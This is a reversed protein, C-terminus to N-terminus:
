AADAVVSTRAPSLSRRIEREQGAGDRRARADLGVRLDALNEDVTVARDTHAADRDIGVGVLGATVDRHARLVDDQAGPRDARRPQEPRAPERLSEAGHAVAQVDM